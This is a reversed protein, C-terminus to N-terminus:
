KCPNKTLIKSITNIVSIPQLDSVKELDSKKPILTVTARNLIQFLGPRNGFDGILDMVDSKIIEWFKKYFEIPLGDPGSAKGSPMGNIAM